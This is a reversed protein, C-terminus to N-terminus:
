PGQRSPIGNRRPLHPRLDRRLEQKGSIFLNPVSSLGPSIKLPGQTGSHHNWFRRCSPHHPLHPTLTQRGRETRKVRNRRKQSRAPKIGLHNLANPADFAKLFPIRYM